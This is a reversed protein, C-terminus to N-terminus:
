PKVSENAKPGFQQRLGACYDTEPLAPTVWVMDSAAGAQGAADGAADGGASLRIVKVKLDAGLHQPVGLFRDAHGNGSILLVVKGPVAVQSLTAAMSIDKAIQIRTMPTIQSEPLLNCHGSRILQQQAKLAPGTLQGDLKSDAMADRMQTRPLDAGLVPVGARVATMVAPGYAAWPWSKDSWKLALRVQEDGSSPHLRATSTGADAMELAVAALVGRQALNAVVQQEIKQHEAADHQEGLLLVDLPMLTDIRAATESAAPGSLQGIIPAEPRSACASALLVATICLLTRLAPPSARLFSYPFM